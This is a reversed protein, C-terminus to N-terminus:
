PKPNEEKQEPFVVAVITPSHNGPVSNPASDSVIRNNRDLELELLPPLASRARNYRLM